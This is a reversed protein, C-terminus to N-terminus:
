SPSELPFVNRFPRKNKFRYINFDSDVTAVFRTNLRECIAVITADAFDMSRDHYKIMLEEIRLWDNSQLEIVDLDGIRLCHLFDVSSRGVGSLLHLVETVVAVTVFCRDRLEAFYRVASDHM